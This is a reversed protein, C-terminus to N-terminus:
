FEFGPITMGEIRFEDEYFWIQGTGVDSYEETKGNLDTTKYAVMFLLFLGNGPIQQIDVPEFAIPEIKRFRAQWEKIHQLGREPTVVKPGLRMKPALLDFPFPKDLSFLAILFAEVRDVIYQPGDHRVENYDITLFQRPKQPPTVRVELLDHTLFHLYGQPRLHDPRLVILQHRRLLTELKEIETEAAEDSEPVPLKKFDDGLLERVSVKDGEEAEEIAKVNKLFQELMEPPMDPSVYTHSGHEADFLAAKIQNEAYQEEKPDLKDENPM